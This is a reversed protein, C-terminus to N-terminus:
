FAGSGYTTGENEKNKDEWGKRIARLKKRRKKGKESMKRAREKKKKSTNETLFSTRYKGHRIGLKSFVNLLGSCGKNFHIVASYVGLELTSRGVFVRKSCKQWIVNNIAENVNQTAGHLCKKLLEDAGLDTHGFVPKVIDRIEAPLSIKPKYVKGKGKNRVFGCWSEDGQPCYKHRDEPTKADSCHHVVAAVAKKMSYLDKSSRIAMGYYNQLSNIAKEPLKGMGGIGKSNKGKVIIIKGKHKDRIDRLRKGVRKQVHGVCEAKKLTVGSHPKSEVVKGFSSSDGDGLYTTYRLGHKEISRKYVAIVGVPEMASASGEHNIPCIHENKWHKYAYSGENGKWTQCAKCDKTLVEVDLCKGQPSMATVVGNLSAYGRRQWTGDFSARIDVSGNVGVAEEGLVKKKTDQAAESMTEDAVAKYVTRLKRNTRKYATKNMPPPMNMNGCFTTISDYGMGLERFAQVANANVEYEPPGATKSPIINSTCYKKGWKCCKCKAEVFHALGKKKSPMSSQFKM